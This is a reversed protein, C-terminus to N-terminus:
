TRNITNDLLTNLTDMDLDRIMQRKDHSMVFPSTDIKQHSNFSPRLLREPTKQETM